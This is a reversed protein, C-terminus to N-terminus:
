RISRIVLYLMCGMSIFLAFPAKRVIVIKDRGGKSKKWRRIAEAEDANIRSRMDEFSIGPLGKVKSHLFMMSTGLSVIMGERVDETNIEQYNYEGILIQIIVYLFSVVYYVIRIPELMWVGTGFSYLVSAGLVFGFAKPSYLVPIKSMLILLCINFLLQYAGLQINWKELIFDEIKLITIVYVSNIAFQSAANRIRDFFREGSFRYKKKVMHIGTDVVLYVFGLGFAYVPIMIENLIMIGKESSLPPILLGLLIMFKSDGAAWIHMGYLGISITGLILLAAVVYIVADQRYYGYLVIDLIIGITAFVILRKGKIQNYRLDTYSFYLCAVALVVILLSSIIKM